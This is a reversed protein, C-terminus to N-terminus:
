NFDGGGQPVPCVLIESLTPPTVNITLPPVEVGLGDPPSIELLESFASILDTVDQTLQANITLSKGHPGILINIITMVASICSPLDTVSLGVLPQLLQVTKLNECISGQAYKIIDKKVEELEKTITDSMKDIIKQQISPGVQELRQFNSDAFESLKTIRATLNQIQKQSNDAM